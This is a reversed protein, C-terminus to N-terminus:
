LTGEWRVTRNIILAILLISALLISLHHMRWRADPSIVRMLVAAYLIPFARDVRRVRWTAGHHPRQAKGV